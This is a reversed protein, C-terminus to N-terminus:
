YDSRPQSTRHDLFSLCVLNHDRLTDYIQAISAAILVYKVPFINIGLERLVHSKHGRHLHLM